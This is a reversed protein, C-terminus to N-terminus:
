FDLLLTSFYIIGSKGVPAAVRAFVLSPLRGMRPACELLERCPPFATCNTEIRLRTVQKKSGLALLAQLKGREQGTFVDVIPLFGDVSVIPDESQLFSRSCFLMDLTYLKKLFASTQTRVAM